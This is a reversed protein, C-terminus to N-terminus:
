GNRALECGYDHAADLLFLAVHDSFSRRAILEVDRPEDRPRALIVDARALLTQACHGGPFARPHVDFPTGQRLVDEVRPGSLRLTALAGSLEVLAHHVGDLSARLADVRPRPGDGDLRLLWEDPGLWYVTLADRSVMRNATLPLGVGLAESVARRTRPCEADCRLNFYDQFALEEVRVGCAGAADPRSADAFAALPSRRAPPRTTM